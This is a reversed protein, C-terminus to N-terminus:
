YDYIPLVKPPSPNRSLLVEGRLDVEGFFRGWAGTGFRVSAQPFEKKIPPLTM